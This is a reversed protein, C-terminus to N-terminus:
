KGKADKEAKDVLVLDVMVERIYNNILTQPPQVRNIKVVHKEADIQSCIYILAQSAAEAPSYAYQTINHETQKKPPAHPTVTMVVTYEKVLSM